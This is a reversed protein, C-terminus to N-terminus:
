YKFEIVKASFVGSGFGSLSMKSSRVGGVISLPEMLTEDIVMWSICGKKFIHYSKISRKHYFRNNKFALGKLMQM